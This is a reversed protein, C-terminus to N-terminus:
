RPCERANLEWPKEMLQAIKVALRDCAMKQASAGSEGAEPLGRGTAQVLVPTAAEPGSEPRVINPDFENGIQSEPERKRPNSLVKGTRLDRWVLEMVINMEFERVENQQNRNVLTKNFRLLTGLLETDASDSGSVVKYPTKIEIERIVARHLEMELERHPTTQFVKNAFIPVYVTRISDDYNPRTTYGLITFQGDNQCGASVFFGLASAIIARRTPGTNRQM